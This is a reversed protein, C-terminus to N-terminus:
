GAFPTMWGLNAGNVDQVIAIRGTNEIDFPERVVTAGLSVAKAIRKDIDDVAVYSFWHEPIGDFDPSPMTFIGGVLAEGMKCIYYSDGSEMPMEEFTWGFSEGYFEMAKKAKRTNLENWYFHGHEIM